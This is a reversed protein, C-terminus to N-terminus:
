SSSDSDKVVTLSVTGTTTVSDEEAPPEVVELSVTGQTQSETVNDVGDGILLSYVLFLGIVILVVILGVVILNNRSNLKRRKIM